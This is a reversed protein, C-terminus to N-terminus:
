RANRLDCVTGLPQTWRLGSSSWCQRYGETPGVSEMRYRYGSASHGGRSTEYGDCPMYGGNGRWRVLPKDCNGGRNSSYQAAAPAVITIAPLSDPQLNITPAGALGIAFALAALITQIKSFM